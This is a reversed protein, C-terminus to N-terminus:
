KTLQIVLPTASPWEFAAQEFKPPGFRIRAGNSFGVPESPAGVFNTDLRGDKDRDHYASIAYRGPAIGDFEFLAGEVAPLAGRKLPEGADCDPYDTSAQWLCLHLTGETKSVNEIRVSLTSAQAAAPEAAASALLLSLLLHRMTM